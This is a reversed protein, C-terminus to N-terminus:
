QQTGGGIDVEDGRREGGAGAADDAFGALALGPMAGLEVLM